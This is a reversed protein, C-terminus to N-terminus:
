LLTLIRCLVHLRTDLLVTLVEAGVCSLSFAYAVFSYNDRPFYLLM